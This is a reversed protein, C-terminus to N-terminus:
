IEFSGLSITGSRKQAPRLMVDILSVYVSNKKVTLAVIHTVGGLWFSPLEKAGRAELILINV